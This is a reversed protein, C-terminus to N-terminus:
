NVWQSSIGAQTLIVLFHPCEKIKSKIVEFRNQGGIQYSEYIFSKIYLRDLADGIWRVLKGDENTAHSIFVKFKQKPLPMKTEEYWKNEYYFEVAIWILV